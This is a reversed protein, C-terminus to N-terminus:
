QHETPFSLHFDRDHVGKVVDEFDWIDSLAIELYDKLCLYSSTRKQCKYKKMANALMAMARNREAEPLDKLTNYYVVCKGFHARSLASEIILRLARVEIPTPAPIPCIYRVGWLVAQALKCPKNEINLVAEISTGEKMLKSQTYCMRSNCMHEVARHATYRRVV